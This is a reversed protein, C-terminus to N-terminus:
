RVKGIRGQRLATVVQERPGDAVVRGCDLVIIRDVLDLLSTRHTVVIMTRGAALRSLNSKVDNESALDMAATPEDLLLIPPHGLAARALAVQQKQGGSLLDGREGVPMEFGRPHRDVFDLLGAFRAAEVIEDDSAHVATLMLNERLTGQFLTVDQPVYGINSRLEAPDLQRVDIGDLLVVGEFPAYLGLILKEITSKGSGIRGLIAVREGAAVSFSVKNLVPADAHPYTFSVDRFEISGKLRQRRIVANGEQRELPRTMLPDLSQLATAAKNYQVLLSAAQGFPAMARSTLLYCAVLGGSTLRGEAVLYVGLIVVCVTLAHQVWLALHNASASFSRLRASGTALATASAEWKRQVAGEAGLAKVTELAGLAEVLTANRQAGARYAADSLQQMRGQAYWAYSLLVAVALVFMPVMPWAIWGVVVIFLLAFPLDIFAVVTSSSVFDRVSEFARLNAAFAGVSAPRDALKMGLVREMIETSLSVEVRTAALDVFRGRLIRLLWDACVVLIAGIALVWLTEFAHNPVVRDYVNLVFLPLALAFLNILLAALLVDRYIRHNAFIARWFWHGQRPQVSTPSAVSLQTKPRLYLARGAYSDQLSDLPVEVLSDGLEPYRVQAVRKKADIGFLVCARRGHLLLIIPALTLNLQELQSRVVRLSLGARRAVRVCLAPTLGDAGVPLGALLSEPSQKLGHSQAVLLLCELLIDPTQARETVDAQDWAKAPDVVTFRSTTM